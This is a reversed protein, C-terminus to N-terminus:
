TYYSLYKSRLKLLPEYNYDYKLKKKFLTDDNKMIEISHPNTLNKKKIKIKNYNLNIGQNKRNKFWKDDIKIISKSKYQKSISIPNKRHNYFNLDNEKQIIPKIPVLNSNNINFNESNKETIINMSNIDSNIKYFNYETHNLSNNATNYKIKPFNRSTLSNYDIKNNETIINIPKYSDIIQLWRKKKNNNNFISNQFFLEDMPNKIRLLKSIFPKKTKKIKIPNYLVYKRNDTKPNKRIYELNIVNTCCDLIIQKMKLKIIEYISDIENKPNYFLQITNFTYQGLSLPNDSFHSKFTKKHEELIEKEIDEETIEKIEFFIKKKQRIIRKKKEEEINKSQKLNNNKILKYINTNFVIDNLLDKYVDPFNNILNKVRHFYNIDSLFTLFLDFKEELPTMEIKRTNSM